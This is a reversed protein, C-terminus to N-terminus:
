FKTFRLRLTDNSLVMKSSSLKEVTYRPMLSTIGYPRLEDVHTVLSDSKRRDNLRADYLSLTGNQHTFRFIYNAGQSPQTVNLISGQVAWFIRDESVEASGGTRMTDVTTLHWYGDLKGNDSHELECSALVTLAVVLFLFSIAKKM